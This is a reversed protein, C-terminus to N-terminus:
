LCSMNYPEEINRTRVTGAVDTSKASTLTSADERETINIHQKGQLTKETQPQADEKQPPRLVPHDLDSIDLSGLLQDQKAAPIDDICKLWIGSGLEDYALRQLQLTGTAM